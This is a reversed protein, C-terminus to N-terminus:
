ELDELQKKLAAITQAKTLERKEAREKAAGADQIAKRDNYFAQKDAPWSSDWKIASTKFSEKRTWPFGCKQPHTWQGNNSKLELYTGGKGSGSGRGAVSDVAKRKNNRTGQSKEDIDNGSYCGGTKMASVQMILETMQKDKTDMRTLMAAPQDDKRRADEAM